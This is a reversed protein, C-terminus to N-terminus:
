AHLRFNQTVRAANIALKAGIWLTTRRRGRVWPPLHGASVASSTLGAFFREIGSRWARMMPWMWGNRDETLRKSSVRDPHHKRWGLGTGPKCRPAILRLGHEAIIAFLSNSNYGADAVIIQKQEQRGMDKVLQKCATIESYNMPHVAWQVLRHNEDVIAHLKYGKAIRGSAHGNVAEQDNTRDELPYAKGDTLFLRGEPLHRQVRHIIWNLDDILGPDKMRRSMTSQDPLKRRWAQVPWNKRQCAWNIPRHHIAAWLLTALIQKNSYVANRPWRPPLAKLAAVIPKWLDREM